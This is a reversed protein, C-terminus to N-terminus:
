ESAVISQGKFQEKVKPRTLFFIVAFAIGLSLVVGAAGIIIASMLPMNQAMVITDNVDRTIGAIAQITILIMAALRAAQKLLLLGIGVSFATALWVLIIITAIPNITKAGFLGIVGFSGGLMFFVALITVGKSRKKEM